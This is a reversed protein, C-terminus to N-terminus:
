AGSGPPALRGRGAGLRPRDWGALDAAAAYTTELFGLLTADPDASQRVADYPLVWEGLDADYRAADPTVAADAYGDPEPFAYSYFAAGGTEAGPWFGASSVEQSYAERM